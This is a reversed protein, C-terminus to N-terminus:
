ADVIAQLAAGYYRAVSDEDASALPELPMLYRMMALGILQTAVLSARLRAAEGTIVEGFAHAVVTTATERLRDAAVGHVAASRAMTMLAPRMSLDDWVSLHARM